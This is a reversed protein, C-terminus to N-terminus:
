ADRGRLFLYLLMLGFTVDAQLEMMGARDTHARYDLTAIEQLPLGLALIAASLLVGLRTLAANWGGRSLGGLLILVAGAIQAAAVAIAAPPELSEIAAFDALDKAKIWGDHGLFVGLCLRLCWHAGDSLGEIWRFFAAM